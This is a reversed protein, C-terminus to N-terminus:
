LHSARLAPPWDGTKKQVALADRKMARLIVTVSQRRGYAAYVEDCALNATMGSRVMEEIKTWFVLRFSFVSKVTGREHSTFTSAPKRGGTGFKWEVWLDHLTKPGKSLAVVTSPVQVPTAGPAPVVDTLMDDQLSVQRRGPTAAIRHLLKIVKTNHHQSMEHRRDSESRMDKLERRLHVIQSQLLHMEQREMGSRVRVDVNGGNGAETEDQMLEDIILEADIGTVGLPIKRVPNEGEALTNRDGLDAYASMVRTRIDPNVGKEGSTHFIKWLLARGLVTCAQTPVMATGEWTAAKTNPVVYDLIWQDTIGSEKKVVYEVPGGKCLAAAVKADVYPITTDAYTDQQRKRHKWRGRHDVHDKSCGGGRALTVAMKRLSHSGLAELLAHIFEEDNIIKKLHYTASRKIKIPDDLGWAGFIYNNEEPNITFHLELWSALLSIVCYRWDDAGFLVQTPADREDRCNKSWCLRATIGYDPFADLPKLDPARFKATDDIRAVMNLQFAVYSSLWIGSEGSQETLLQVVQGFEEPKFARRAKSAVGLRAAEMKKMAEVLELIPRSRTPNGQMTVENWPLMRNVMFYSWAKKWYYVTTSRYYLPRDNDIQANENGYVKIKLYRIIIEPTVALKEDQTWQYGPAFDRGDHVFSMLPRTCDHYLEAKSKPM